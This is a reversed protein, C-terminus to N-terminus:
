IGAQCDGEKATGEKKGHDGVREPSVAKRYKENLIMPVCNVWSINHHMRRHTEGMMAVTVCSPMTMVSYFSKVYTGVDLYIDTLGGANAQTEKQILSADTVSFIKEGRSGLTVYMNVDENISGFFSFPRDVRCFFANMAKRSLKKAFCKGNLGGIYDGGQSLAVVLSGSEYLFNLMAEFLRDLNTCHEAALKGSKEFRFDFATYDDDLELFSSLGLRKAIEFCSNRAYLVINHKEYNDMTDSHKMAELKDFVIVNEKGYRAIYEDQQEDENDVVIYIKGTYGGKRLTPITYVRGARGHSLILVAFDNRM